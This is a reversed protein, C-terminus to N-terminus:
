HRAAGEGAKGWVVERRAAARRPPVQRDPGGLGAPLLPRLRARGNASPSCTASPRRPALLSYENQVSVFHAAGHAVAAEAERLQDVSFNSCGIERVKGATVCSTWPGWPTPSPRRPIPPTCITSTSTTPAWGACATRSPRASTTPSPGKHARRRGEHRVQHGGGGRRAPPGLAAAWSSRARPAATSTPPTSSTSATRRPRCGGGRRSRDGDIRGGFNNCGLGVVSVELSGIQRTRM